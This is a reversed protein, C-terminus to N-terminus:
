FGGGRRGGSLVPISGRRLERWSTEWDCQVVAGTQPKVPSAPSPNHASRERVTAARYSAFGLCRGGGDERSYNLQPIPIDIFDQFLIGARGTTRAASNARAAVDMAWSWAPGVFSTSWVTALGRLDVPSGSSAGMGDFSLLFACGSMGSFRGLKLLSTFTTLTSTATRSLFPWKMGLMGRPLKRTRSSLTGCCILDKPLLVAGM